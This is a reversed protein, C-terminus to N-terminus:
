QPRSNLMNEVSYSADDLTRIAAEINGRNIQTKTKMLSRKLERLQYLEVMIMTPEPNPIYDVVIGKLCQIVYSSGRSLATRCVQESGNYSMKNAITEVCVVTNSPSLSTMDECISALPAYLYANAGVKLAQVTYSTGTSTLRKAIALLEPNSRTDLLAEVCPVANSGSISAVGVCVEGAQADMRRNAGVKLVQIAYSSGVSAARDATMLVGVDFSNHAILQACITGNSPSLLTIKQCLEAPSTYSQAFAGTAMLAFLIALAQKKM